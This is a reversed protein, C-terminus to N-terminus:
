QSGLVTPAFLVADPVRHVTEATGPHEGFGKQMSKERVM